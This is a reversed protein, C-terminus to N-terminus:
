SPLFGEAFNHRLESARFPRFIAGTERAQALTKGPSADPPKDRASKRPVYEPAGAPITGSLFDVPSVSACYCFADFLNILEQESMPYATHPPVTPLAPVIPPISPYKATYLHLLPWIQTALETFRTEVKVRDEREQETM